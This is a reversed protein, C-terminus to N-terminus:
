HASMDTEGLLPALPKFSQYTKFIIYYRFPFTSEKEPQISDFNCIIDFFQGFLFQQSDFKMCFLRLSCM